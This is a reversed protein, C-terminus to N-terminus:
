SKDDDPMDIFIEGFEKGLVLTDNCIIWKRRNSKMSYDCNLEHINKIKGTIRTERVPGTM